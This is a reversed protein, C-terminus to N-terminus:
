ARRRFLSRILLALVILGAIIGSGALWGANKIFFPASDGRKLQGNIDDASVKSNSLGGFTTRVYNVVQAMEEASLEGKFGPMRPRTNPVQQIGHAVVNIVPAPNDRRLSSIGVIPAYGADPQGYGNVGHCSACQNLYLSEGPSKAQAKAQKLYDMQALLDFTMNPSHESPLAATNVPQVTDETTIAPVAKLYSAIASLDKDSLYRTSNYVVENMPGSAVAKQHIKGQRLYTVIDAESWRGIGSSADPTINPAYWNGLMSGSLYKNMDYGLTANRPTHCTGCHALNDVLYQGYKQTDNLGDRAQWKPMNVINWGLMVTRINFPFPLQTKHEPAEDVAPVTQFYAFLASIDEDTMANYDPYPMAPYLHHTPTKGKTLAKKFDQETYSGIGYKISPTINTAYITGMPAEVAVGGSYDEKHCGMCDAQRAVYAGRNVLESQSANYSPMMEPAAHAFSIPLSLSTGLLTALVMPRAPSLMTDRRLSGIVSSIALNTFLPAIPKM